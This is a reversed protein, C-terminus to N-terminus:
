AVAPSHRSNNHRSTVAQLKLKSKFHEIDRAKEACVKAKLHDWLLSTSGTKNVLPECLLSEYM